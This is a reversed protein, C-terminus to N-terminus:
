LWNKNSLKRNFSLLCIPLIQRTQCLTPLFDSPSYIKGSLCLARLSLILIPSVGLVETKSKLNTKHVHSLQQSHGQWLHMPLFCHSWQSLSKMAANAAQTSNSLNPPLHCKHTSPGFTQTKTLQWKSLVMVLPKQQLSSLVYRQAVWLNLSRWDTRSCEQTDTVKLPIMHHILVCKYRDSFNKHCHKILAPPTDTNSVQCISQSARPRHAWMTHLHPWKLTGLM